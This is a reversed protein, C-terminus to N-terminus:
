GYELEYNCKIPFYFLFVKAKSKTATEINISKHIGAATDMSHWAGDLSTSNAYEKTQAELDDLFM